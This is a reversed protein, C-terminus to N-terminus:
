DFAMTADGSFKQSEKTKIEIEARHEVNGKIIFRVIGQATAAISGSCCLDDLQGTNKILGQTSRSNQTAAFM